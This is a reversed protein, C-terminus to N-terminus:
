QHSKRAQEDKWEELLGKKDILGRSNQILNQFYEEGKELGEEVERKNHSWSIIKKTKSSDLEVTLNSHKHRIEDLHHETVIFLELENRPSDLIAILDVKRLIDSECAYKVLAYQDDRDLNISTNVLFNQFDDLDRAKKIDLEAVGPRLVGFVIIDQNLEFPAKPKGVKRKVGEVQKSKKVIGQAELLKLQTTTNATSQGTKRALESASKKGRSLEKLLDWKNKTFVEEVEM